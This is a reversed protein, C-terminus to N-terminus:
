ILSHLCPLLGRDIAIVKELFLPVQDIPQCYGDLKQSYCIKYSTVWQDEDQRGQTTIATM